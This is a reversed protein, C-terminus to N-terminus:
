ENNVNKVQPKFFMTIPLPRKAPSNRHMNSGNHKRKEGVKKSVKSSVSNNKTKFDEIVRTLHSSPPPVANLEKQLRCAVHHDVHELFEILPISQNCEACVEFLDASREEMKTPENAQCERSTSPIPNEISDNTECERSTSPIPNDISNSTSPVPHQLSKTAHVEAQLENTKGPARLRKGFFYKCFFSDRYDSIKLASSNDNKSENETQEQNETHMSDCEVVCDPKSQPLPKFFTLVSPGSDKMDVFKGASLGLFKLAPSRDMMVISM